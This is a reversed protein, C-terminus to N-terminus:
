RYLERHIQRAVVAHLLGRGDKGVHGADGVEVDVEGGLGHGDLAAQGGGLDFAEDFGGTFAGDDDAEAGGVAHLVGVEARGHRGDPPGETEAGVDYADDSEDLEVVLRAENVAGDVPQAGPLVRDGDVLTSVEAPAAAADASVEVRSLGPMSARKISFVLSVHTVQSINNGVGISSRIKAERVLQQFHPIDNTSRHNDTFLFIVEPFSSMGIRQYTSKLAWICM